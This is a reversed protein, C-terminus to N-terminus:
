VRAPRRRRSRLLVGLGILGAALALMSGVDSGTRPLQTVPVPARNDIDVKLLDLMAIDHDDEDGPISDVNVDDNDIVPDNNPNADPTSDKDTVVVTPTSYSSSGDATIEAVNRYGPQTLDDLRLQLSLVKIAGPAISPVDTWFVAGAIVVGGDSATLFSMGTPIVDQVSVLGSPVTGQNKVEITYNIAGGLKYLQGPTVIKVLALDYVVPVDFVAIDEDDFGTDGGVGAETVVTNDAASTGVDGPVSDADSVTVTPTSYIAASDQTIEAVNRYPRKTLDVPRVVVTVIRSEGAPLSSLTWTVVSEGSGTVGGDSASVFATGAPLTDVVTFSGSNVTGQNVITISFTATGNYAISSSDVTKILALDYVVDTTLPAVDHDDEDVDPDNFQDAPLVTQDVLTDNSITSDPVSDADEIDVAPTSPRGPGASAPLVDYLDASDATIESTNVFPRRTIDVILMSVTLTETVGPALSPLNSWTVSVRPDSRDGGDSARVVEMGGPVWDIVSYPGSPVNGQNKVLITFTATGLPSITAPGTKVLTLDYTVLVDVDAIDADDSVDSGLGASGIANSGVNDIAGGNTVPGYTGDNSRDTDPVSDADEVDVINGNVEIDYFDAGDATIEAINRFPRKTIDTVSATFVKTITAGAGIDAITWTLTTGAVDVVGDGANVVTLGDPIWDTVEIQKSDLNGQNQITVTFTITGDFAVTPAGVTKALALDYRLQELDVDAVDADDQPDGGRVGSDAITTGDISSPDGRPGYDGDNAVNTDPTSDTDTVNYIEESSDDSIEAVNRYPRKTVDTVTATWTYTRSAGPALNIGAFTVLDPSGSVSVGGTTSGSFALGDPVTDTVVFAGSPVNGQNAVTISYTITSVQTVLTANATKVLALDYTVPVLM